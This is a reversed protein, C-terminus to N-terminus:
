HNECSLNYKRASIPPSFTNTFDTSVISYDTKLYGPNDFCSQLQPYLASMSDLSSSFPKIPQNGNRLESRYILSLMLFIVPLLVTAGITLKM